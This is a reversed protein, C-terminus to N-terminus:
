RLQSIVQGLAAMNEGAGLTAFYTFGYTDHLERLADANEQATGHLVGPLRLLEEDSLGPRLQRSLSLDLDGSGINHVMSLVLCLEIEPFRDGAARRLFDIREAMPDSDTHHADRSTTVNVIDAHRAAVTLLRDGQGAIMVPVRHGAEGLLKGVETVTQEVHEVRQRASPFPLGATAFEEAVYGAGLGLEFRGDTLEHLGLVDRALLAPRYFGANLVLTGLHPRTTAEAASILAPFPSNIGLHDPVLLVDYGLDEAQRANDQWVKRTAPAFLNIGFRFDKTTM